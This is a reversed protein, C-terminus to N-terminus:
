FAPLGCSLRSVHPFSNWAPPLSFKIPASLHSKIETGAGAKPIMSSPSWASALWPSVGRSRWGWSHVSLSRSLDSCVCHHTNQDSTFMQILQHWQRFYLYVTCTLFVIELPFFPTWNTPFWLFGLNAPLLYGAFGISRFQLPLNLSIWLYSRNSLGGLSSFCDRPQGLPPPLPSNWSLSLFVPAHLQSIWSWLGKWPQAVVSIGFGRKLILIGPHSMRSGLNQYWSLTTIFGLEWRGM